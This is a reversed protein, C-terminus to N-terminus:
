QVPISQENRLVNQPDYKKKIQKLRNFNEAGFYANGYDPGIDLDPYNQYKKGNVFPKLIQEFKSIWVYGPHSKPSLGRKVHDVNVLFWVRWVSWSM